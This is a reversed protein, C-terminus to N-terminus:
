FYISLEFRKWEIGDYVYMYNECIMIEGMEGPTSETPPCEEPPGVILNEVQLNDVVLEDFVYATPTPTPTPTCPPVIECIEYTQTCIGRNKWTKGPDDDIKIWVVNKNVGSNLVTSYSNLFARISETSYNIITFNTDGPYKYSLLNGQKQLITGKPSTFIGDPSNDVYPASKTTAVSALRKVFYDLRNYSIFDLM